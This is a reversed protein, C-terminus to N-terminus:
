LNEEKAGNAGASRECNCYVMEGALVGAEYVAGKDIHFFVRNGEAFDGGSLKRWDLSEHNLFFLAIHLRTTGSSIKNELLNCKTSNAAKLM